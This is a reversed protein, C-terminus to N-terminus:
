APPRWQCESALVHRGDDLRIITIWPEEADDRVVTGDLVRTTDYHFCVQTRKGVHEYQRPFHEASINAVNGM